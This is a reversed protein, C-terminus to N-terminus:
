LYPWSVWWVGAVIAALAVGVGLLFWRTRRRWERDAVRDDVRQSGTRGELVEATRHSRGRHPSAPPHLLDEWREDSM